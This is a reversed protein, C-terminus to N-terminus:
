IAGLAVAITLAGIIAAAVSACLVAAAACDKAIRVAAHQQPHLHDLAQELATNVLELALVLAASMLCLAWWLLPPRLALLVVLMALACVCQTRFSREQAWASRIGNFAFALRHLFSQNKLVQSGRYRFPLTLM